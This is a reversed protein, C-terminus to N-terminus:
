VNAVSAGWEEPRVDRAHRSFLWHHGALDEAGYQREGYATENLPETIKVGAAKARQFHEDVDELFITLSQTASGLQKPTQEGPRTERLMICAKGLCIQAGAPRDPDGYRFHERFGFASSLRAIAEAVDEYVVHALLTEAPVSQNSIMRKM